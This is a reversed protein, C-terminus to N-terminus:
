RCIIGVLHDQAREISGRLMMLGVYLRQARMVLIHEAAPIGNDFFERGLFNRRYTRDRDRRLIDRRNAKM